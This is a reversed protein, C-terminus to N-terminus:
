GIKFPITVTVTTGQGKQSEIEITGGLREALRKAIALGLGTGEYTSRSTEKEQSFVDFAHALFSESM